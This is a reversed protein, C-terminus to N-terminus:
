HADTWRFFDLDRYVAVDGRQHDIVGRGIGPIALTQGRQLLHHFREIGLGGDIRQHQGASALLEERGSCIKVLKGRAIGIDGASDAIGEALRKLCQGVKAADGNSGDVAERHTTTQLHSQCAINTDSFLM